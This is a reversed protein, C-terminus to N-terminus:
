QPELRGLPIAFRYAIGFSWVNYNRKGLWRGYAASAKLGDKIYYNLGFDPQQVNSHPLHYEGDSPASAEGAFFQQMRAVFETRRMASNWLQIQSFRYAGEVWYGSGFHGRAYEFRLNLPVPPPQWAFHVGESQTRDEQLLKQWSAGVEIRPRPFFFGVRGGTTRDSEFATVTSATSFYAAYNLNVGSNLPFGGRLMAGDSSGTGIPFILPTVQLDRIWIPYLRENYIGFPTLFRGATITLHSNAIYDVQLYDLTKDVTGGYPGDEGKPREFEASFRGRSEVLWRDGLPVLAVPMVIPVLANEGATVNTFYGASGTLIPVPQESLDQTEQGFAATCAILMIALIWFEFVPRRRNSRLCEDARLLNAM